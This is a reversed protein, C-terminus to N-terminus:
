FDGFNTSMMQSHGGEGGGRTFGYQPSLSLLSAFRKWGKTDHRMRRDLFSRSFALWTLTPCFPSYRVSIVEDGRRTLIPYLCELLSYGPEKCVVVPQWLPLAPWLLYSCISALFSPRIISSPRSKAPLGIQRWDSARESERRRM